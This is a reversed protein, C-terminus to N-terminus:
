SELNRHIHDLQYPPSFLQKIFKNDM